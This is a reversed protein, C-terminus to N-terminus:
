ELMRGAPEAAHDPANQNAIVSHIRSAPPGTPPTSSRDRGITIRPTTRVGEASVAISDDSLMSANMLRTATSMPAM